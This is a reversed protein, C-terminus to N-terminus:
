KHGVNAPTALTCAVLDTFFDRNGLDRYRILFHGGAGWEAGWSNRAVFCGVTDDYGLILVAHGAHESQDKHYPPLLMGHRHRTEPDTHFKHILDNVQYGGVLPTRHHALLEKISVVDNDVTNFKLHPYELRVTNLVSSFSIGKTKDWSERLAVSHIQAADPFLLTDRNRSIAGDIQACFVAAAVAQAVCSVDSGQNAPAPLPFCATERLDVRSPLPADAEAALRLLPPASSTTSGM